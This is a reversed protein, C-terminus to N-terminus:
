LLRSGVELQAVLRASLAPPPIGNECCKRRVLEFTQWDDEYVSAWCLVASLGPGAGSTENRRLAYFAEGSFVAIERAESDEDADQELDGLLRAKLGSSWGIRNRGRMAEEYELYRWAARPDGESAAVLLEFTTVSGRRGKKTGAAALERGADKAVYGAVREQARDLNLLEYTIGRKRSPEGLRARVLKRQWALFVAECLEELESAGVGPRLFVLLHLHPHWGNVGFTVELKRIYGVTHAEWLGRPGKNQRCADWSGGLGSLLSLLSSRMVHRLTLTVFAVSGGDAYHATVALGINAAEREAAGPGCVPCDLRKCRYLHKLVANRGRKALTLRGDPVLYRSCRRQSKLESHDWLWRL